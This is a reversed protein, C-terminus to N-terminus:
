LNESDYLAIIEKAWALKDKARQGSPQYTSWLELNEIRNDDRAGNLHHVNEHKELKRGLHEAMVVRHESKGKFSMKVYGEKDTYKRKVKVRRKKGKKTKM